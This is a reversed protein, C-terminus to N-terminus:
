FLSGPHAAGSHISVRHRSGLDRRKAFPARHRNIGHDHGPGQWLARHFLAPRASSPRAAVRGSGIYRATRRAQGISARLAVTKGGDDTQVIWGALGCAAGHQQDRFSVGFFDPLTFDVFRPDNGPGSDQKWQPLLSNQQEQWTKGGNDTGWIRGMEGVVWGHSDDVFSAGYYTPEQYPLAYDQLEPLIHELQRKFFSEGGDTTSLILAHDGVMFGHLRDPFSLAFISLHTRSNLREWTKGGDRTRMSLGDQGCLYGNQDDVMQIGYVALDTGINIPKFHLGADETYLVKGRTGVIFASQSGTPWVDFFIDHSTVPRYPLPPVAVERHCAVTTLSALALLLTVTHRLRIKPMM